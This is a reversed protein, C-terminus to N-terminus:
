QTRRARGAYGGRSGGRVGERRPRTYTNGIGGSELRRRVFFNPTGNSSTNTKNVLLTIQMAQGDIKDGNRTKQAVVADAKRLYTVEAEGLSRGSRDYKIQVNQISGFESFLAKLDGENVDYRLNSILLKAGETDQSPTLRSFIGKKNDGYGTFRDHKWIPQSSVSSPLPPVTDEQDMAARPLAFSFSNSLQSTTQASQFSRQTSVRGRSVRARSPAGRPRGFTNPRYVPAPRPGRGGRADRGRGRGRGRGRSKERSIIDDLPLDIRSTPDIDM